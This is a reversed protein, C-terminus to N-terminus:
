DNSRRLSEKRLPMDRLAGASEVDYGNIVTRALRWDHAEVFVGEARM